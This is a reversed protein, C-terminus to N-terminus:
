SHNYIKKSLGYSSALKGEGGIRAKARKLNGELTSQTMATERQPAHGQRGHKPGRALTSPSKSGTVLVTDKRAHCSTRPSKTRSSFRAEKPGPSLAGPSKSGLALRSHLMQTTPVADDADKFQEELDKRPVKRLGQARTTAGRAMRESPRTTRVRIEPSQLEDIIQTPTVDPSSPDIKATLSNVQDQLYEVKEVLKSHDRRTETRWFSFEDYSAYHAGLWRRLGQMACVRYQIQTWAAIVEM